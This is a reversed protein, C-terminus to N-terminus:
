LDTQFRQFQRNTWSCCCVPRSCTAGVFARRQLSYSNLVWLDPVISLGCFGSVLCAFHRLQSLSATHFTSRVRLFNYEPAPKPPSPPLRYVERKPFRGCLVPTILTGTYAFPSSLLCFCFWAEALRSTVFSLSLHRTSPQCLYALPFPNTCYQDPAYFIFVFARTQPREAQSANQSM